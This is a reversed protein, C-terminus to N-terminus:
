WGRPRDVRDRSDFLRGEVAGLRFTEFYSAGVVAGEARPRAEADGYNRGEISMPGGGTPFGPLSTAAAAADVGPQSRIRDLLSEWFRVQEEEELSTRATLGVRVTMIDGTEVGVDTNVAKLVGKTMLASTGLLLCALAVEFVVLGWAIRGIALGTGTRGGDRLLSDLSPRSARLAAPLGAILTSFRGAAARLLRPQLDLPLEGIEDLFLTGGRAREFAGPHEALAGTFAGREHGFLESEVLNPPVAGCDFVIFPRQRAASAAHIAHAFVDKGTGTEGNLMVTIATPAFREILAIVEHIAPSVATVNGLRRTARGAPAVPVASFRRDRGPAAVLNAPKQALEGAFMM